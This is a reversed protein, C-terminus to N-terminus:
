KVVEEYTIDETSTTSKNKPVNCGAPGCCGLNFIAMGALLVGLFINLSNHEPISQAVIIAGLGLRILRMWNWNEFVIQKM